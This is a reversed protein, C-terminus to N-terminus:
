GHSIRKAMNGIILESPLRELYNNAWVKWVQATMHVYGFGVGIHRASVLFEWDKTNKRFAVVPELGFAKGTQKNVAKSVQNWWATLSVNEVRKIEFAFPPCIIDAGGDRVQDLNRSPAPISFNASLWDCFEREGGAGKARANLPM